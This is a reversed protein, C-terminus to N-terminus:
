EECREAGAYHSFYSFFQLLPTIFASLSHLPLSLSPFNTHYSLSNHVYVSSKIRLPQPLDLCSWHAMYVNNFTGAKEQGKTKSYPFVIIIILMCFKERLKEFYSEFLRAFLLSNSVNLQKSNFCGQTRYLFIMKM